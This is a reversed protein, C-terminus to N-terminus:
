NVIEPLLIIKDLSTVNNITEVNVEQTVTDTLITTTTSDFTSTLTLTDTLGSGSGKYIEINQIYATDADGAAAIAQTPSVLSFMSILLVSVALRLTSLNILKPMNGSETYLGALRTNSKRLM